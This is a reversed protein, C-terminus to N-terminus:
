VAADARVQGKTAASRDKIIARLRTENRITSLDVHHLFPWKKQAERLYGRKRVAAQSTEGGRFGFM